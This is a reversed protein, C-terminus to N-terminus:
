RIIEISTNPQKNTNKRKTLNSRAQNQNQGYLMLYNKIEEKDSTPNSGQGGTGCGIVNIM